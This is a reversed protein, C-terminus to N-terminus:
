EFREAVVTDAQTWAGGASSSAVAAELFEMGIAGDHQTPFQLALPDVTEGVRRAAIAEAADAYINAFATLFGGPHGAAVREARRAAPLTGPGNATHLRTPGDVPTFILRSPQEYSWEISGREGSVRIRQSNEIGAAAQTVWLTGRAGNSFRLMAAATDDVSRGPVVHGIDAAVEDVELRTVFRVLAHAHTGIDGMVLSPGSRAADFRWSPADNGAHGGQVYDVQVLRIEGLQGSEVMARAQRVMAYGTYNHTLCFVLGTDRVRDVIDLAEALTSSMPKDCIVDFGRDLAAVADAYHRDSPTMISVVDAGDPLEREVDLMEVTAGYTRSTDIGVAEGAARSRDPDSSLVGAVIEYRGDLRAAARHTSGIFSSPGGGVVALRLPRGLTAIVPNM